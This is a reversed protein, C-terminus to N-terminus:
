NGNLLNELERIKRKVVETNEGLEIQFKLIDKLNFLKREAREQTIKCDSM